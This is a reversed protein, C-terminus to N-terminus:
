ENKVGKLIERLKKELIDKEIQTIRVIEEYSHLRRTLESLMETFLNNSITFHEPSIVEVHAPMFKFMLYIVDKIEEAEIEVEAFTTYLEKNDKILIPENIKKDKVQVGKEKNIDNIIRDLTEKLYEPPTGIIDFIFSVRVKNESSM